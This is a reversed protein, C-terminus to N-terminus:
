SPATEVLLGCDDVAEGIEDEAHETLLAACMSATSHTQRLQGETDWDFNLTLDLDM